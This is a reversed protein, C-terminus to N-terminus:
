LVGFTWGESQLVEESADPSWYEKKAALKHLMVASIVADCLHDTAPIDTIQKPLKQSIIEEVTPWDRVKTGAAGAHRLMAGTYIEVVTLGKDQPKDWPWIAADAHQSKLHHLLRMGALSAMGVQSPGILHFASEARGLGQEVCARETVRLRRQYHKGKHKTRHFYDQHKEVFPGAYYDVADISIDDIERWLACPKEVDMSIYFCQDAFPLSFSFDFGILINNYKNLTNSLFKFIAQRSWTKEPPLIIEVEGTRCNMMAVAIGPHRKGKGGSWDIACVHDFQITM